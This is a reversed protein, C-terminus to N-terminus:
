QDDGWILVDGRGRFVFWAAKIRYFFGDLGVPRAPIWQRNSDISPTCNPWTRIDDVTIYSVGKIM